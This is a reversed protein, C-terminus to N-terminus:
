RVAQATGGFHYRCPALGILFRFEFIGEVEEGMGWDATTFDVIGMM